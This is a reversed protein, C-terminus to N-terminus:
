GTYVPSKSNSESGSCNGSSTQSEQHGCSIKDFNNRLTSLNQLIPNLLANTPFVFLFIIHHSIQPVDEVTLSVILFLAPVLHSVTNVACITSLYKVLYKKKQDSKKVPIIRNSLVSSDSLSKILQHCLLPVLMSSLLLLSVSIGSLTSLAFSGTHSGVFMCFSVPVTLDPDTLNFTCLISFECIMWTWLSTRVNKMNYHNAVTLPFKIALYRGFTLLFTLFCSMWVHFTSVNALFQCLYGLRWTMDEGIYSDGTIWGQVVLTLLFNCFVFDNTNVAIANASFAKGGGKKSRLHSSHVLISLSIVNLIYILSSHFNVFAQTLDNFLLKSCEQLACSCVCISDCAMKVVCYIACQDAVFWKIPFSAFAKQHVVIIRNNSINLLALCPFGAFAYQALSELKNNSIDLYVVRPFASSRQTKVFMLFNHSIRFSLLSRLSQAKCSTLCSVRNWSLDFVKMHSSSIHNLISCLSSISSHPIILTVVNELQLNRIQAHTIHVFIFNKLSFSELTLTTPKHCLIALGLCNCSNPCQSYFCQIEDDKQPCDFHGNCVGALYICLTSQKCKFHGACHVAECNSEDLGSWCDWKSDCVYGFPICYSGHCKFANHCEYTECNELHKGNRCIALTKTDKDLFFFCRDEKSFCRSHGVRCELMDLGPCQFVPLTVDKMKKITQEDELNSCDPVLDDLLSSSINHGDNCLYFLKHTREASVKHNLYLECGGSSQQTFLPSCSCNASFCFKSCFYSNTVVIRRAFTCSCNSEDDGYEPCDVTGDCVSTVSVTASSLCHFVGAGVSKSYNPSEQTKTPITHECMVSTLLKRGCEVKQLSPQMLNHQVLLFCKRGATAKSCHQQVRSPEYVLMDFPNGSANIDGSKIKNAEATLVFSIPFFVLSNFVNGVGCIRSWMQHEM